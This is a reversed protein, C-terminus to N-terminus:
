RSSSTATEAARNIWAAIVHINADNAEIATTQASNTSELATIRRHMRVYDYTLYAGASISIASVVIGAAILAVVPKKLATIINM